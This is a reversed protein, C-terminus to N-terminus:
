LFSVNLMKKKNFSSPTPDGFTMQVGMQLSTMGYKSKM